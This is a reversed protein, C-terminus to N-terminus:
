ALVTKPPVTLIAGKKGGLGPDELAIHGTACALFLCPVEVAKQLQQVLM